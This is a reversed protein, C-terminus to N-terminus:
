LASAEEGTLGTWETSSPFLVGSTAAFCHRTGGSLPGWRRWQSPCGWRGATSSGEGLARPHGNEAISSGKELSLVDCTWISGLFPLLLLDFVVSLPSYKLSGFVACRAFWVLLCTNAANVVEEWAAPGGSKCASGTRSLVCSAPRASAYVACLVAPAGRRSERPFM